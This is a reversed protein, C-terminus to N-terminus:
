IFYLSELANRLTNSRNHGPFIELRGDLSSLRKLSRYLADRDGGYLDFRGYNGDFLTDGTFLANGVLYCVSGKSHGPTHIVNIEESGLRIVDGENLERDCPSLTDYKGFFLALASKEADTLMEADEAHILLQAGTAERLLDASTTHDFHGHTLLIYKLEANEKRLAYFVATASVGADILAAQGDCIIIYSNSEWGVAFFPIIKMCIGRQYLKVM